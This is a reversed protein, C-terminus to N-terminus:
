NERTNARTLVQGVENARGPDVRYPSKYPAVNETLHAVEHKIIPIEM